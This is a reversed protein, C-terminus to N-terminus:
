SCSPTLQEDNKLPPVGRSNARFALAATKVTWSFLPSIVYGVPEYLSPCVRRTLPRQALTM